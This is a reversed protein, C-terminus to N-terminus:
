DFTFGADMGGGGDSESEDSKEAVGGGGDDDDDPLNTDFAEEEESEEEGMAASVLAEFEAETRSFSCLNCRLPGAPREEPVLTGGCGCLHRMLWVSLEADKERAEEVEASEEEEEAAEDEDEDDDPLLEEVKCRPCNCEFGYETALYSKRGVFKAADAAALGPVARLPWGIGVYSLLVESGAPLDELARYCVAPGAAAPEATAPATREAFSRCCHRLFTPRLPHCLCPASARDFRECRAVTPQCSHNALSMKPFWGIGRGAPLERGSGAGAAASAPLPQLMFSNAKDQQLLREVFAAPPAAGALEGALAATAAKCCDREDAALEIGEGQLCAAAVRAYQVSGAGSAQKLALVGALLGGLADAADDAAVLKAATQCVLQHQAACGAQCEASCWGVRGACGACRLPLASGNFKLCGSCVLDACGRDVWSVSPQEALVVAGAAVPRTLFLARGLGGPLTRIELGEDALAAAPWPEPPEASARPRKAPPQGAESVEDGM